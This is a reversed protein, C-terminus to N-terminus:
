TGPKEIGGSRPQKPLSSRIRPQDATHLRVLILFDINRLNVNPTARSNATPSLGTILSDVHSLHVNPIRPV